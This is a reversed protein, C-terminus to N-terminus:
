IVEVDLDDRAEQLAAEVAENESGAYVTYTNEVGIFGAFGVTVEWEGEDTEVIDEVSLDDVAEAFALERAESEDSADVDYTEDAGIYGGFNVTVEYFNLKSM